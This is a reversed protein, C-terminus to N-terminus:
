YSFRSKRPINGKTPRNHQQCFVVFFSRDTKDKVFGQIIINIFKNGFDINREGYIIPAGYFLVIEIKQVLNGMQDMITYFNGVSYEPAPIKVLYYVQDVFFDYRS